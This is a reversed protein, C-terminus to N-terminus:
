TKPGNFFKEKLYEDVATGIAAPSAALRRRIESFDTTYDTFRHCRWMTQFDPLAVLVHVEGGIAVPEIAGEAVMRRQEEMVDVLAGITDGSVVFRDAWMRLLAEKGPKVIVGEDLTESRFNNTSRYVFARMRNDIADFGFHYITTLDQGKPIDRRYRELIKPLAAIAINDLDRVGGALVQTQILLYWDLVVQLIGTGCIVANLHPLPLIKSHFLNPSGDFSTSKADMTLCVVREDYWGNLATM